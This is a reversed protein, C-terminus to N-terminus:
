LLGTHALYRGEATTRDCRCDGLCHASGPQEKDIGWHKEEFAMLSIRFEGPFGGPQPEVEGCGLRVHGVHSGPWVSLLSSRPLKLDNVGEYAEM